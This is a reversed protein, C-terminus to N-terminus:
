AAMNRTLRNFPAAHCAALVTTACGTYGGILNDPQFAPLLRCSGSPNDMRNGAYKSSTHGLGHWTGARVTYRPLTVESYIHVRCCVLGLTSLGAVLVLTIWQGAHCALARNLATWCLLQLCGM